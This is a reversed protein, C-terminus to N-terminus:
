FIAGGDEFTIEEKNKGSEKFEQYANEILNFLKEEDLQKVEEESLGKWTLEKAM